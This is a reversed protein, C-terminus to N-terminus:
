SIHEIKKKLRAIINSVTRPSKYIQNAMETISKGNFVMDFIVSEEETLALKMKLLEIESKSLFEFNKRLM